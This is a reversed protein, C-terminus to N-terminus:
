SPPEDSIRVDKARLDNILIDELKNRLNAVLQIDIEDPKYWTRFLVSRPLLWMMIGSQLWGNQHKEQHVFLCVQIYEKTTLYTNCALGRINGAKAKPYYFSKAPFKSAIRDLILKSAGKYDNSAIGSVIEPDILFDINHGPPKM